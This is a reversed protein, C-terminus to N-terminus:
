AMGALGYRTMRGLWVMHLGMGRGCPCITYWALGALCYWIGRSAWLAVAYVMDHGCPWAKWVLGYVMGDVLSYRLVMGHGMGHGYPWVM